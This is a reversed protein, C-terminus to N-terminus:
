FGETNPPTTNVLSLSAADRPGHSHDDLLEAVATNSAALRDNSAALNAMAEANLMMSHIYSRLLYTEVRPDDGPLGAATDIHVMAAQAHNRNVRSGLAVVKTRHIVLDLDQIARSYGDHVRQGADDYVPTLQTKLFASVEELATVALATPDITFSM